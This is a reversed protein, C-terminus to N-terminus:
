VSHRWGWESKATAIRSAPPRLSWRSKDSGSRFTRDSFRRATWILGLVGWTEIHRWWMVGSRQSSAMNGTSTQHHPPRKSTTSCWTAIVTRKPRLSSSSSLSPRQTVDNRWIVDHHRSTVRRRVRRSEDTQKIAAYTVGVTVGLVVIAPLHM